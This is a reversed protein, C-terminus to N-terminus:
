FNPIKGYSLCVPGKSSITVRGVEMRTQTLTGELSILMIMYSQWVSSM